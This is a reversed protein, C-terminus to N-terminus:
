QFYNDLCYLSKSFLDSIFHIFEIVYGTFAEVYDGNASSCEPMYGDIDFDKWTLEIRLGWPVHIDYTCFTSSPYRIPYGPSKIYGNASTFNRTVGCIFTNNQVPNTTPHLSAAAESSLLFLLITVFM